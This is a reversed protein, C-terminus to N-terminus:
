QNNGHDIYLTIVVRQNDRRAALWPRSTANSVGAPDYRSYQVQDYAAFADAGEDHHHRAMNVFRPQLYGREVPYFRHQQM